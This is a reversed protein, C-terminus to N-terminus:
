GDGRRYISLAVEDQTRLDRAERAKRLRLDAAQAAIEFKKLTSFADQLERRAQEIQAEVEVISRRLTEQRRLAAAVYDHYTAAAEASRGAIEQEGQMEADLTVLDEALRAALRELDALRRRAEDVNWRHIRIQSVFSKM